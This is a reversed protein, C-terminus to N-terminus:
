AAPASYPLNALLTELLTAVARRSRTYIYTFLLPPWLFHVIQLTQFVQYRVGSQAHVVVISLMVYTAAALAVAGLVLFISAGARCFRKLRALDARYTVTTESGTPRFDFTAKDLVLGRQSRHTTMDSMETVSLRERSSETIELAGLAGQLNTAFFLSLRRSVENVDLPVVAEGEVDGGPRSGDSPLDMVGGAGPSSGLSRNVRYLNFAWFAAGCGWIVWFIVRAKDPTFGDM